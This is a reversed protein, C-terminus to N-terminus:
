QQKVPRSVSHSNADLSPCISSAVLALKSRTTMTVRPLPCVNLSMSDILFSSDVFTM